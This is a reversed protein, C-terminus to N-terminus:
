CVEIENALIPLDTIEMVSHQAIQKAYYTRAMGHLIVGNSLLVVLLQRVQSGLRARLQTELRTENESIRNEAHAMADSRRRPFRFFGVHRFVRILYEVV